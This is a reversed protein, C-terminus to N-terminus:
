RFFSLRLRSSVHCVLGSLRLGLAADATPEPSKNPMSTLPESM